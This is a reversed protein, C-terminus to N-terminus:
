AQDHKFLLAHSMLALHPAHHYMLHHLNQLSGRGPVAVLRCTGQLQKHVLPEIQKSPLLM